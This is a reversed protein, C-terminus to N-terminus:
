RQIAHRVTMNLRHSLRLLTFMARRRAASQGADNIGGYTVGGERRIIGRLFADRDAMFPRPETKRLCVCLLEDMVDQAILRYANADCLTSFFERSYYNNCHYRWFGGAALEEIAPIIHFMLGGTRTLRHINEFCAYQAEYPEVHETTGSNTVFDFPPWQDAEIPKSLDIPLAGDRGNLDFSTHQVGRRTYYAKGTRESVRPSFRKGWFGNLVRQNGLELMSTGALGGLEAGVHRDIFDLHQPFYAM